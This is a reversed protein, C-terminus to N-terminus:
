RVLYFASDSLFRWVVDNLLFVFGLAEGRSLHYIYISLRLLRALARRRVLWRLTNGLEKKCFGSDDAGGFPIDFLYLVHNSLFNLLTM